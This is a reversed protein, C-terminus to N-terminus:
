NNILQRVRLENLSALNLKKLKMGLFDSLMQFANRLNIVRTSTEDTPPSPKLPVEDPEGVTFPLQARPEEKIETPPTPKTLQLMPKVPPKNSTDSEQKVSKPSVKDRSEQQVLRIQELIRSKEGEVPATTNLVAGEGKIQNLARLHKHQQFIYMRQAEAPSVGFKLCLMKEQQPTLVTVHQQSSPPPSTNTDERQQHQQQTRRKLRTRLERYPSCDTSGTTNILSARGYSGTLCCRTTATNNSRGRVGQDVLQAIDPQVLVPPSTNRGPPRVSVPGPRDEVSATTKPKRKRRKMGDTSHVSPTLPAKNLHEKNNLLQMNNGGPVVGVVPHHQQHPPSM